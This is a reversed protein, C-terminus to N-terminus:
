SVSMVSMMAATPAASLTGMLQARMKPRLRPMAPEAIPVSMQWHPIASHYMPIITRPARRWETLRVGFKEPTFEAHRSPRHSKIRETVIRM